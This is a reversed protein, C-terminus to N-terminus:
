SGKSESRRRRTYQWLLYSVLCLALWLILGATQTIRYGGFNDTRRVILEHRGEFLFAFSIRWDGIHASIRAGPVIIAGLAILTLAFTCIWTLWTFVVLASRSWSKRTREPPSYALTKTRTVM